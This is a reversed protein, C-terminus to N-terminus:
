FLYKDCITLLAKSPQGSTAQSAKTNFEVNYTYYTENSTLHIRYRDHEAYTYVFIYIQNYKPTTFPGFREM